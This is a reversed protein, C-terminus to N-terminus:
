ETLRIPLGQAGLWRDAAARDGEQPIEKRLPWEHWDEPLLIRRLDPHGDFIIGFMDYTERELWNAGPWVPVVSDVSGWEDLAVKLRLVRNHTVSYLQYVVDFRPLGRLKIMDVGCLDALMAYQQEPEDRLYYCVERLDRARLRIALQGRFSTVEEIAEPFRARLLAVVSAQYGPVESRGGDTTTRAGDHDRDVPAQPTESEGM